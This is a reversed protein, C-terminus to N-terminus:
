HSQLLKTIQNLNMVNFINQYTTALVGSTNQRHTQHWYLNPFYVQNLIM